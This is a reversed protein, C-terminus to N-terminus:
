TIIVNFKTMCFDPQMGQVHSILPDRHAAILFETKKKMHLKM